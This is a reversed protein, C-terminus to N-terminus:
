QCRGCGCSGCQGCYYPDLSEGGLIQIELKLKENQEPKM